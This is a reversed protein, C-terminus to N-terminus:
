QSARSANRSSTGLSRKREISPVVWTNGHAEVFGITGDPMARLAAVEFLKAHASDGDRHGIIGGALTAVQGAELIRVVHDDTTILAEGRIAIRRPIVRATGAPGDIVTRGHQRVGTWRPKGTAVDFVSWGGAEDLRAAYLTGDRDFALATADLGKRVDITPPSTSTDVVYLDVALLAFRTPSHVAFDDIDLRDDVPIRVAAGSDISTVQIATVDSNAPTAYLRGAADFAALQRVRHAIRRHTHVWGPLLHRSALQAAFDDRCRATSDAFSEARTQLARQRVLHLVAYARPETPLTIASAWTRVDVGAPPAVRAAEPTAAIMAEIVVRLKAHLVALEGTALERVLPVSIEDARLEGPAGDLSCGYVDALHHGIEHALVTALLLNAVRRAEDDDVFLPRPNWAGGSLVTSWNDWYAFGHGVAPMPQMTVLTSASWYRSMVDAKAIMELRLPEACEMGHNAYAACLAARTLEYDGRVIAHVLSGNRSERHPPTAGCGAVVCLLVRIWRPGM